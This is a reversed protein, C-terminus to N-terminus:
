KTFISNDGWSAIGHGARIGMEVVRKTQEGRDIALDGMVLFMTAFLLAKFM